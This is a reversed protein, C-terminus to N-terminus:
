VLRLLRCPLDFQLGGSCLMVENNFQILVKHRLIQRRRRMRRGKGETLCRDMKGAATNKQKRM